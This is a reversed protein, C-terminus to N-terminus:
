PVPSDTVTGSGGSGDTVVPVPITVQDGIKIKNANKIQPNAKLLQEATIGFKAAIKSITDGKAVVYVQPTPAPVPTPLPTATAEVTPRPSPSSAATGPDKGPVLLMPVVFFLALGALVLGIAAVGIRPIRGISPIGIRAGLSPYAEYRKPKEWAPGFLEAAEQRTQSPPVAHGRRSDSVRPPVAPRRSPDPRASARPPITGAAGM